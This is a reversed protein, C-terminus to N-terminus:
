KSSTKILTFFSALTKEPDSGSLKIVYGEPTTIEVQAHQPTNLTHQLKLIKPTSQSTDISPVPPPPSKFFQSKLHSFHSQGIGVTQFFQKATGQFQSKKKCLDEFLDKTWKNRM